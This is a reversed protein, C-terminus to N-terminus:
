AEDLIQIKQQDRHSLALSPAIDGRERRRGGGEEGLGAHRQETCNLTPTMANCCTSERLPPM